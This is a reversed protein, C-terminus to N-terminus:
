PDGLPFIESSNLNHMFSSVNVGSNRVWILVMLGQETQQPRHSEPPNPNPNVIRSPNMPRRPVVLGFDVVAKFESLQLTGRQVYPASRSNEFPKCFISMRDLLALIVKIVSPAKCAQDFSRQIGTMGSCQATSLQPVLTLAYNYAYVDQANQANQTNEASVRRLSSTYRSSNSEFRRFKQLYNFFEQLKVLKLRIPSSDPVLFCSTVGIDRWYQGYELRYFNQLPVLDSEEQSARMCAIVLSLDLDPSMSLVVARAHSISERERSLSVLHTGKALRRAGLTHHDEHIHSWIDRSQKSRYPDMRKYCEPHICPFLGIVPDDKIMTFSPNDNLTTLQDPTTNWFWAEFHQKEGNFLHAREYWKQMSWPPLLLLLSMYQADDDEIKLCFHHLKFGAAFLSSDTSLVQLTVTCIRIHAPESFNSHYEDESTPAWPM